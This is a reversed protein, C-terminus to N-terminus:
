ASSACAAQVTVQEMLRAFAEIDDPPLFRTDAWVELYVAPTKLQEPTVRVPATLEPGSDVQLFLRGSFALEKREWTYTSQPLAARVDAETPVPGGPELEADRRRDNVFCALDFLEGHEEALRELLAYRDSPRCYGHLAGATVAKWAVDVVEDFSRDAVEVVCIGPQSIVGVIDAFGPRFRNSVITQAVSPDVGTIEALAVAYAALFVHTTNTGTRAAIRQLALHMAPLYGYLEWVPPQQGPGEGRFRRAPVGHLAAAWYRLSKDNARRGAPGAQARAVDLPTIGHMPATEIGGAKDLFALDRVMADIGGGDVALHCYQVVMHTVGGDRCVVGMRVPWEDPYDFAPAEFEVRLM